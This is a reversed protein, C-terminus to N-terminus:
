LASKPIVPIPDASADEESSAKQALDFRQQTPEDTPALLHVYARSLARVGCRVSLQYTHTGLYRQPELTITTSTGVNPVFEIWKPLHGPIPSVDKLEASCRAGDGPVDLTVYWGGVGAPLKVAQEAIGRVRMLGLKGGHVGYEKAFAPATLAVVLVLVSRM